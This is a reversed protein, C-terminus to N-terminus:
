IGKIRRAQVSPRNIPEDVGDISNKGKTALV